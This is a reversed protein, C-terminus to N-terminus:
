ITDCVLVKKLVARCISIYFEQFASVAQFLSGQQLDFGGTFGTAQV